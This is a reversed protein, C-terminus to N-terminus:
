FRIEMGVYLFQPAGPRPGHPHRSAVYVEDFLNHVGAVLKAQDNLQYYGSIDVVFHPDLEGFRADPNGDADLLDDNNLASSYSKSTFSGTIFVGWKKKFEIGTGITALYEPVYPVKNGKEGGAFISEPDTSQSDDALEANTYTFSLFNPTSFGWDFAIGPDYQVLLELGFSDVRGVNEDEGSGSGGVNSVVILDDFYTYFLVAEVVFAKKDSQFRLGGEFAISTEEDLGATSGSPSPTSFGRHIGGFFTWNDDHKYNFGVGGGAVTLDADASTDANRNKTEQWLHEVRIGPTITLKDFKIEDQIYGAVALTEERRNDQSGPVGPILNLIAGNTDQVYQDDHQFREVYDKHVRIGMRLEHEIEGTEFQIRPDVSVGYAYYDRNNARVRLTGAREGRLVELGTNAGAGALAASLSQNVGDGTGDGDTDINRLDNLKYWNRHFKTYYLTTTLDLEKTLEVYHRLHARHQNSDFNDFRSASYRRQPDASFDEESLGLYTEDAERKTYGYKFEFRQYSSSNPEWMLKFMPEVNTFGTDGGTFDPASDISKFGDNGRYWLEGVFGIRGISETDFTMGYNAHVRIDNDSGYTTKLYGTAEEPIPTSLYNIVGGTIHPGYLIQSSGKLVEIGSMRGTTPSFYAEPASYAAPAMLVGDEMMTVKSSRSTDAGRLSINPFLGFGDEGRLYVGPVKRLAQNVDDYNQTRIEDTDLFYGSGPLTVINEKSGIVEIDAEITAVPKVPIPVEGTDQASVQSTLGPTMSTTMAMATLVAMQRGIQKADRKRQM